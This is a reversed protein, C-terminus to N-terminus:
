PSRPTEFLLLTVVKASLLTGAAPTEFWANMSNLRLIKFRPM